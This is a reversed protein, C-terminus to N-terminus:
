HLYLLRIIQKVTEDEEEEEEELTPEEEEEDEEELTPEEEEEDEEEEEEELTPEEEDEDMKNDHKIAKKFLEICDICIHINIGSFIREQPNYQNCIYCKISNEKYEEVM